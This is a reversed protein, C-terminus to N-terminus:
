APDTGYSKEFAPLPVSITTGDARVLQLFVLKLSGSGSYTYPIRVFTENSFTKATGTGFATMAYITETMSINDVTGDVSRLSEATTAADYKTSFYPTTGSPLFDSTMNHVFHIQAGYVANAAAFNSLKVVVDFSTATANELSVAASPSKVSTSGGTNTAPETQTPINETKKLEELLKEKTEQSAANFVKDIAKQKIEKEKQESAAKAEEAKKKISDLLAQNALKLAEVKKKKELEAEAKMQEALLQKAKREAEVKPDIGVTKDVPREKTLDYKKEDSPIAQNAQVIIEQAQEATLVSKNVSEKLLQHLSNTVNQKYKEAQGDLNLTSGNIFNEDSLFVSLKEENEADIDAKNLLIKKLIKPDAETVLQELDSYTVGITLDENVTNPYTEIMQAPLILPGQNASEKEVSGGTRMAGAHVFMSATGDSKLIVTFDTGRVGMVATPTEVKYTDSSGTLKKVNSYMNGSWAKVATEKGGSLSTKLKSVAGSWNESLVIEDDTDAIKVTLSAGKEVKLKDGENLGMGNFVKIEKTGGAKTVKVTGTIDTVVAYRTSAGMATGSFISMAVTLAMMALVFKKVKRV